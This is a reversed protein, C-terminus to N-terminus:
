CHREFFQVVLRNFLAPSDAHLWHGANAIVKVQANPFRSLTQKQHEPLLYDSAGGKIFLTPGSYPQTADPAKLVETYHQRIARYNIRWVYGQATSRLNKLLFQRITATELWPQILRDAQARNVIPLAADLADLALFIDTHHPQYDVPAIDAVVLATISDPWNLALQMAVKGGMSHGVIAFQEIGLSALTARVAAAMQPYDQWDVHASRGHNPLDLRVVHYNSALQQSLGALNDADGFLGHLLVVPTGTGNQKHFLQM